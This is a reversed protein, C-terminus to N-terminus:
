ITIGTTLYGGLLDERVARLIGQGIKVESPFGKKVQETFKQTYSHDRGLESILLNQVQSQWEAFAGPDLTPFGIVGSLNPKDTAIVKDGKVILEDIRKVCKDETGM